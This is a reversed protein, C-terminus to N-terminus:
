CTFSGVCANPSGSNFASSLRRLKSTVESVDWNWKGEGAKNKSEHPKMSCHKWTQTRVNKYYGDCKHWPWPYWTMDMLRVQLWGADCDDSCLLLRWTKKENNNNYTSMIQTQVFFPSICCGSLSMQTCLSPIFCLRLLTERKIAAPNRNVAPYM